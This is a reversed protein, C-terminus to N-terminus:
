DSLWLISNKVVVHAQLLIGLELHSCFVALVKVEAEFSQAHLEAM